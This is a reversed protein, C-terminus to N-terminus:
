GIMEDDNGVDVLFPQIIMIVLFALFLAALAVAAPLDFLLYLVMVLPVTMPLLGNMRKSKLTWYQKEGCNPCNMGLSSRFSKRITEKWTWTYKCNECEPM